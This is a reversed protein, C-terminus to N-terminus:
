RCGVVRGFEQAELHLADSGVPRLRAFPILTSPFQSRGLSLLTQGSKPSLLPSLFRCGALWREVAETKWSVSNARALREPRVIASHSALSASKLTACSTMMASLIARM